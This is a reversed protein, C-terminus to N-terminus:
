HSKSRGRGRVRAALGRPALHLLLRLHRLGDLWPRLHPARSRGDRALTTPIEVTVIGALAAKVVMESALEMGEGTLNLAPVLDRRLGRLGCHFDRVPTPFLIRGILSLAPNGLYRNLFPMAGPAIGGAFRNGVVMGAGGRLAAVFGDLNGFDYSADADGIIVYTGRAATLAGIMAAGYGRRAIEVVRAGADRAIERSGDTSGNDAIVIEGRLGTRRLFGHAREICARLTKAEDLCPMAITLELPESM